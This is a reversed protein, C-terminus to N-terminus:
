VHKPRVTFSFAIYSVIERLSAAAFGVFKDKFGDVTNENSEYKKPFSEPFSLANLNSVANVMCRLITPLSPFHMKDSAHNPWFFVNLKTKLVSSSM